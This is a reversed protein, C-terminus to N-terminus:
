LQAKSHKFTIRSHWFYSIFIVALSLCFQGLIPNVHFIEVVIALFAAVFVFYIMYFSSFKIMESIVNGRTRFVMTKQTVFAVIVCIVQSIILAVMYNLGHPGFTWMLLPYFALGFITNFGGALLFRIKTEHHGFAWSVAHAANNWFKM